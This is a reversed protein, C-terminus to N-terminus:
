IACFFARICLTLRELIRQHIPSIPPVIISTPFTKLRPKQRVIELQAEDMDLGVVQGTAGVRRALERTVDGGGCGVDLCRMRPRIGMKDLFDYTPAQFVHSLVRLRERGSRGGSIAYTQAMM